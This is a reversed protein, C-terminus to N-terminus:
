RPPKRSTELCANKDIPQMPQVTNVKQTDVCVELLLNRVSSAACLRLKEYSGGYNVRVM